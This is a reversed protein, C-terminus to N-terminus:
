FCFIEQMNGDISEALRGCIEHGFLPRSGASNAKVLVKINNYGINVYKLWYESFDESRLM